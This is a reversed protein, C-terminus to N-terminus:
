EMLRREGDLKRIETVDQSVELCGRYKGDRDRMAFYRIHIFRGNVTIWFEATDRSGERFANLIEQVRPMSKPPHCNQVKRGIVGASRPFIREKTASYYRVEDNEDVFSVDVPLTTLMLNIQGASLTGTDLPVGDASDAYTAATAGAANQKDSPLIWAYGIEGEGQRVRDWEAPALTEMAMPFLIREEKYIMDRLAQATETITTLLNGVDHSQHHAACNGVMKRIDDDLSWMVQSPGTIDHQELIPFLQNEKRLYHLNVKGLSELLKTLNLDFRAYVEASPPTGIAKVVDELRDLLKELARNEVMFTHVPHGEPTQPADKVEISEKFVQVHVDCLRKVEEQPMGEAILRQEMAAIESADVDKVVEAFQRKAEVVDGGDHLHRIIAKLLEHKAAPDTIPAAVTGQGSATDAPTGTRREIEAAIKAILEDATFGGIAAVQSLAAVKGVTNRAIPNKLLKYKPSLTVFFDLLFDHATLLDNIKTEPTIRVPRSREL